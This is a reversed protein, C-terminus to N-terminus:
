QVYLKINLFKLNTFISRDLLCNCVSIKLTWLMGNHFCCCCCITNLVRQREIDLNVHEYFKMLVINLNVFIGYGMGLHNKKGLYKPRATQRFDRFDHGTPGTSGHVHRKHCRPVAVPQFETTVSLITFQFIHNSM